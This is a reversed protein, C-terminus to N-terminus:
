ASPQESISFGIAILIHGRGFIGFSFGSCGWFLVILAEEARFGRVCLDYAFQFGQLRQTM